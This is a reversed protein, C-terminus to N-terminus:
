PRQRRRQRALCGRPQERPAGRTRARTKIDIPQVRLLNKANTASIRELARLQTITATYSSGVELSIRYAYQPDIEGPKRPLGLHGLARNILQVPMLFTAAFAQAEIEQPPLSGLFAREVEDRSDVSISTDSCTTASSTRPPLANCGAPTGRTSSSARADGPSPLRRVASRTAPVHAVGTRARDRLVCRSAGRLRDRFADTRATRAPVGLTSPSRDAGQESQETRAPRHHSARRASFSRSACCSHVTASQSNAQRATSRRRSSTRPPAPDSSEGILWDYPKRYLRAFERLELTSVKRKGTEINTVAPRTLKLLQAVDQQSLGLFERSERLGSM